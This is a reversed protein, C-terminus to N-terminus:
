KKVLEYDGMNIAMALEDIEEHTLGRHDGGSTLIDGIDGDDPLVRKGQMESALLRLAAIVADRKMDIAM